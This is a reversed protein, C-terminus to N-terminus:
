IFWHQNWIKGHFNFTIYSMCLAPCIGTSSVISCAEEYLKETESKIAEDIENDEDKISENTIQDTSGDGKQSSDTTDKTTVTDLFHKWFYHPVHVFVICFKNATGQPLPPRPPGGNLKMINNKQHDLGLIGNKVPASSKPERKVVLDLREKCSELLKRAEKLGLSDIFSGNIKTVEDGERLLGDKDAVTRPLIEKIYIKCGLVLGFDEKRKSRQLSVNLFKPTESTYISNAPVSPPLIVRRKVVLNVNQGSDRLVQVATAYDVGELSVNNASIVRDNIRFIYFIVNKHSNLVHYYHM